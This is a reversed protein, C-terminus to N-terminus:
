IRVNAFGETAAPLLKILNADNLFLHATAPVGCFTGAQVLVYGDPLANLRVNGVHDVSVYGDNTSTNLLRRAAIDFYPHTATPLNKREGTVLNVIAYESRSGGDWYSNINKGGHFASVFARRKRYDPFALRVIRSVEAHDKLEITTVAM